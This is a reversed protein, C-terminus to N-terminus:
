QENTPVIELSNQPFAGWELKKGAFWQCRYSRPKIGEFNDIEEQVTMPPGGSKLRVIHGPLFVQDKAM